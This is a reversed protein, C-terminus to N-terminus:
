RSEQVYSGHMPLEQDLMAGINKERSYLLCAVHEGSSNMGMADM